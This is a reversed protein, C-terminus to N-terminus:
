IILCATYIVYLLVFVIGAIRGLKKNCTTFIMLLVIALIAVAMDFMFTPSFPIPLIVGTIGLVFLINFINSGVINGIAIDSEGKFAAIVSTVLEPLSTGLAIITLGIIRESIGISHSIDIAAAVAIKSGFILALIGLIIYLIIKTSSTPKIQEDTDTNGRSIIYLYALFVIFLGLLVCASLRSILQYQLGFWALLITVFVTFPIEYKQTNKQVSLTTIISSTGLILLVNAINSGIINGIAIANSGRIASSISVAAEPASTGMAVITLGIVIAPIHLRTALASAGDVFYDAGKILLVFGAILLILNLIM